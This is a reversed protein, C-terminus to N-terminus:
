PAPTLTCILTQNEMLLNTPQVIHSVIYTIVRIDLPEQLSDINVYRCVKMRDLETTIPRLLLYGAVYHRKASQLTLICTAVLLRDTIM